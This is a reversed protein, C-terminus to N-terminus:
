ISQDANEEDSFVYKEARFLTFLRDATRGSANRCGCGSIQNWRFFCFAPEGTFLAQRAAPSLM